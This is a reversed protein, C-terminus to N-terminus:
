WISGPGDVEGVILEDRIFRCSVGHLGFESADPTRFFVWSGIDPKRGEWEFSGDYKFAAPGLALVLGVKGQYREEEIMKDTLIIGGASRDKHPATAVLVRNGYVHVGKLADGLADMVKQKPDEGEAYTIVQAKMKM